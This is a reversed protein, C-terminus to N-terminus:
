EEFYTESSPAGVAAAFLQPYEDTGPDGIKWSSRPDAHQCDM